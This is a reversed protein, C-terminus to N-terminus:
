SPEEGRDISRYFRLTKEAAKKWSFDESRKLGQAILNERLKEETLVRRIASAIDESENPDFFIAAQQAIEPIAPARSLVCPLGSAMAEVVPLGFGESLSPFVLAEALRYLARLELLPLFDLLLVHSELGHKQIRDQLRGYDMAKKGAIVLPVQIQDRALLSLADILRLLNKRPEVTGVFLLFSSPLAHKQRVTELFEEGPSEFFSANVGHYVAQVKKENVSFRELIQTKVFRSVTLIGDADRLSNGIRRRFFKGAERGVLQPQDMFFLDHVTVITKGRTPLILPIPSHTLDLEERFFHDVPPWEWTHWLYNLIMVPLRRDRFERRAFPPLMSQPFRDKLSSSFLFYRNEHDMEALSFLLNKYYVGVGTAQKLFPRIDLGIRM